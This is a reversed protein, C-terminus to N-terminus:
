LFLERNVQEPHEDHGCHGANEVEILQLAPNYNLFRKSFTPLIMHDRKGWLLLSPIQLNSLISKICLNKVLHLRNISTNETRFIPRRM